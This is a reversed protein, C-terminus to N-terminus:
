AYATPLVSNVTCLSLGEFYFPFDIIFLNKSPRRTSHNISRSTLAALNPWKDCAIFSYKQKKKWNASSN